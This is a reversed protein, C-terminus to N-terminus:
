HISPATLENSILKQFNSPFSWPSNLAFRASTSTTLFWPSMTMLNRTACGCNNAFCAVFEFARRLLLMQVRMTSTFFRRMLFQVVTRLQTSISATMRTQLFTVYCTSNPSFSTTSFVEPRIEVGNVPRWIPIAVCNVLLPGRQWWLCSSRDTGIRVNIALCMLAFCRDIMM